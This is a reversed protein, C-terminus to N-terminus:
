RNNGAVDIVKVKIGGEVTHDADLHELVHFVILLEHSPDRAPERRAALEKDMDEGM